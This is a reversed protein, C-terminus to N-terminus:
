GKNKWALFEQFEEFIGKENEIKHELRRGRRM